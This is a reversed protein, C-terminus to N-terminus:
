NSCPVKTEEFYSAPINTFTGDPLRCKKDGGIVNGFYPLLTGVPLVKGCSTIFPKTLKKKGHLAMVKHERRSSTQHVLNM